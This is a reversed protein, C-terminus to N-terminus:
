RATVPAGMLRGVPYRGNVEQWWPSHQYFWNLRAFSDEAFKRDNAVKKAYEAQLQPDKRMMDRAVKEMVYPEGYEKQEFIADFFGWTLASDPAEPELWEVAVRGAPQSTTVIVSGAPYSIKETKAVCSPTGAPQPTSSTDGIGEGGFTAAHRGEFPSEMWKPTPCQYTEVDFSKAATLTQTQVGHAKLVDIVRSWARPIVYAAPVKVTKTVKMGSQMPIDVNLPEHTYQTWNGGSVLSETITYKYGRFHFPTTAGDPVWRLVTDHGAFSDKMAQDATRNIKLLSDVDRNIVELTARMLEYNGTVRTKYDKLMHMEVLMGPRNRMVMYGDSFRPTSQSIKLGKVPDEPVVPEIYPGIVHGTKAVSDDVYPFLSKTIWAALAPIVDPGHPVSYTIDYQYDAGDTVHNDFYFDPQWKNFLGLFARAEPTDAKMYDRNLNLNQANTRFGMEEPGNQNIRNYKSVREHGDVNYVPIIVLVARDLLKAQKKTVVTDRLLALSADIGDSEGAHIGNQVLVVARNAQHAAAPTLAGDKAVIVAYLPYGGATTGFPEIKVQTPAAAAIRRIYAMADAYRPTTRYNSKESPTAWDAQAFASTALAFLLLISRM